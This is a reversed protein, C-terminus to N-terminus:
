EIGNLPSLRQIGQKKKHVNCSLAYWGFVNVNRSDKQRHPMSEVVCFCTYRHVMRTGSTHPKRRCCNLGIHHCFFARPLLLAKSAYVPNNVTCHVKIRKAKGHSNLNICTADAYLFTSQFVFFSYPLNRMASTDLRRKQASEPLM